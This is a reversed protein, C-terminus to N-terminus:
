IITCPLYNEGTQEGDTFAGLADCVLTLSGTRCQVVEPSGRPKAFCAVGSRARLKRSGMRSNGFRHCPDPGHEGDAPCSVLCGAGHSARDLEVYVVIAVCSAPGCRYEGHENLFGKCAGQACCLRVRPLCVVGGALREYCLSACGHGSTGVGESLSFCRVLEFRIMAGRAHEERRPKSVALLRVPM